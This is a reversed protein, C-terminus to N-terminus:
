SYFTESPVISMPAGTTNRLKLDGAVEITWSSLPLVTGIVHGSSDWVQLQSAADNNAVVFQKRVNVGDLGPFDLTTNAAITTVNGVNKAYTPSNKVLFTLQQNSFAVASTGLYYSVTIDSAGSNHIDFFRWTAPSINIQWGSDMDMEQGGDLSLGFVTTASKCFFVSGTQNVRQTVGAKIVVTRFILNVTAASM